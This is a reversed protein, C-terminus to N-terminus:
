DRLLEPALVAATASDGAMKALDVLFVPGASGRLVNEVYDPMAGSESVRSQEAPLESRDVVATVADCAFGYDARDTTLVLVDGRQGRCEQRIDIVPLSAGRLDLVGAMPATMGPLDVLEAMRVVERVADIRTAYDRGDLRFTVYDSM